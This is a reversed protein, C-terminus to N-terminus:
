EFSIDYRKGSAFLTATTLKIELIITNPDNFNNHGNNIWSAFKENMKQAIEENEKLGFYGHNIAKGHGNFWNGAIAVFPNIAIQQMKNSLAYTLVYFSGKDYFADVIRVYPLNDVATALSILSDNGFREVLISQTKENIKEM